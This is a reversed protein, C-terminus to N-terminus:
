QRPFFLLGDAHEKHMEAILDRWNEVLARQNLYGKDTIENKDIDPLRPLIAFRQIHTSNSKHVSNYQKVREYCADRIAPHTQFLDSTLEDPKLGYEKELYGYNPVLLLGIDPQNHGTIVADSVFPRMADIIALRLKGVQVWTGSQLKFNESLRGDFAIGRSVDKPDLFYGADGMNFYGDEDFSQITAGPNRWYGPTVNPGKVSLAMKGQTPTLKIATGPMPLGLNGAHETEFYVCTSFPATETSGWGMFIHPPTDTHQRAIALLRERAEQSLAAAAVFIVRLHSFFKHAFVADDELQPLLAEIGAPVNFHINPKGISLNEVTRGVLAPVPKGDDINLVGGHHLAVNFCVNGGFTHSWPLWDVLNPAEEKLFPWLAELAMQNSYMMRHTNIVGKPVGTSGSTMMVKAVTDPGVLSRRDAVDEDPRADLDSLATVHEGGKVSLFSIGLKGSLAKAAKAFLNPDSVFVAGPKLIDIVVELREFTKAMLAYAPSVPSVPVGITMAAFLLVAHNITNPALTMIPQDPTLNLSLLRAATTDVRHKFSSYSVEDWGDGTRERLFVQHPKEAAWRDLRDLVTHSIDGIPLDNTLVTADGDKQASVSVTGLALNGKEQKQYFM